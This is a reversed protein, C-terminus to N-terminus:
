LKWLLQWVQNDITPFKRVHQIAQGRVLALRQSLDLHGLVTYCGRTRLLASPDLLLPGLCDWACACRGRCGTGALLMWAFPVVLVLTYLWAQEYFCTSGM